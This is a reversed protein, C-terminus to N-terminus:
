QSTDKVCKFSVTKPANSSILKVADTFGANPNRWNVFLTILCNQLIETGAEPSYGLAAFYPLVNVPVDMLQINGINKAFTVTKPVKSSFMTVAKDADNAYVVVQKSDSGSGDAVPKEEGTMIWYLRPEMEDERNVAKTVTWPHTPKDCRKIRIDNIAKVLADSCFMKRNKLKNLAKILMNTGETKNLDSPLEALLRTAIDANVTTNFIKNREKIDTSKLDPCIAEFALVVYGQWPVEKDRKALYDKATATDMESVLKRLPDLYTSTMNKTVKAIIVSLNTYFQRCKWGTKPIIMCLMDIVWWEDSTPLTINSPDKCSCINWLNSMPSAGSAMTSLALYVLSRIHTVITDDPNLEADPSICECKAMAATLAYYVIAFGIAPSSAKFQKHRNSICEALMTRLTIRYTSWHSALTLECFNINGPDPQSITGNDHTITFVPVVMNNGQDKYQFALPVKGSCTLANQSNSLEYLVQLLEPDAEILGRGDPKSFPTIGRDYLDKIAATSGCAALLASMQPGVPLVMYQSIGGEMLIDFFQEVTCNNALDINASIVNKREQRKIDDNSKSSSSGFHTMTSVFTVLRIVDREVAKINAISSSSIKKMDTQLEPTINGDATDMMGRLTDRTTNKIRLKENQVNTNLITVIGASIASIQAPSHGPMFSIQYFLMLLKKQISDDKFFEYPKGTLYTLLDNAKSGTFDFTATSQHTM